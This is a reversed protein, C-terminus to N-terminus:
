QAAPAEPAAEKAAEPAAEPTAEPAATEATIGLDIKRANLAEVVAKTADATEGYSLAQQKNLIVSVGNKARYDDMVSKFEGNLKEVIRQQESSIKQQLAIFEDQAKKMADKDMEGEAPQQIAALRAQMQQGMGRLYEGGAVCADCTQFVEAPDVLAIKETEQKQCGALCGMAALLAAAFMLKFKM